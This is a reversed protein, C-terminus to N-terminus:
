SFITVYRRDPALLSASLVVAQHAIMSLPRGAGAVTPAQKCGVLIFTSLQSAQGLSSSALLM